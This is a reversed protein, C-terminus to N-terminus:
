RINKGFAVIGALVCALLAVASFIMRLDLSLVRVFPLLVVVAILLTRLIRIAILGLVLLITRWPRWGHAQRGLASEPRTIRGYLM